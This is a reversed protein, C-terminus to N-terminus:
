TAILLTFKSIGSLFCFYYPWFFSVKGECSQDIFGEFYLARDIIPIKEVACVRM